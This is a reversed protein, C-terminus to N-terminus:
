ISPIENYVREIFDTNLNLFDNARFYYFSNDAQKISSVTNFIPKIKSSRSFVKETGIREAVKEGDKETLKLVFGISEKKGFAIIDGEHVKNESRAAELDTKIKVLIEWSSLNKIMEELFVESTSLFVIQGGKEEINKYTNVVKRVLETVETSRKAIMGSNYFKIFNQVNGFLTGELERSLEESKQQNYPMFQTM